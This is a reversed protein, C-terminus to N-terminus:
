EGAFADPFVNRIINCAANVGASIATGGRPAFLGRRVGKGTRHPHMVEGDLFSCRSAYRGM